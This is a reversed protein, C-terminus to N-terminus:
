LIEKAEDLTADPKIEPQQTPETILERGSRTLTYERVPQRQREEDRQVQALAVVYIAKRQCEDRFIPWSDPHESLEQGISYIARASEAKLTHIQLSEAMEHVCTEYDQTATGFVLADKARTWWDLPDIKETSASRMVALVLRVALDMAQGPSLPTPQENSSM